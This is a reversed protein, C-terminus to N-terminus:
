PARILVTIPKSISAVIYVTEPGAKASGQDPTLTGWGGRSVIVGKRAVLVSAATVRGSKTEATLIKDVIELRARSMGVQEPKGMKLVRDEARIPAALIAVALAAVVLLRCSLSPHLNM